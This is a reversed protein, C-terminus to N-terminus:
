VAETGGAEASQAAFAKLTMLWTFVRNGICVSPKFGNHAPEAGMALQLCLHKLHMRCSLFYLGWRQQNKILIFDWAENIRLFVYFQSM